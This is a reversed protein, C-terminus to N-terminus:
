HTVPVRSIESVVTPGCALGADRLGRVLALIIDPHMNRAKLDTVITSGYDPRLLLLSKLAAAAEKRHGLHHASVAILIFPYIVWPMNIKSAESLAEAHRGHMFQWMSLAIRYSCSLSPSRRYAEEIMPIGVQWNARAAHRMGLEALVEMDNPNLGRSTELADIASDVQGNFWYAIALALYARSSAPSLQVARQALAIARGIPDLHPATGKYGFRVSNSYLQSLCAFAEAYYPDRETTRELAQRVPEFQDRDFTRWYDHFRVVSDFSESAVPNGRARERAMYSFIIGSPQGVAGVVRDAIQSRVAAATDSAYTMEFYDSWIYQGTAMDRLLVEACLHDEAHAIAGSLIFDVGRGIRLAAIDNPEMHGDAWDSGVVALDTFRTLGVIVRRTIGRVFDTMGDASGEAVFEAVHITPRRVPERVTASQAAQAPSTSQKADVEGQPLSFSPVYSGVPISIRIPDSLGSTLYYHELSRRMRGAEIRVIADQQPDFSENRGFVSTAISYAKIRDARGEITEEVVYELFRRNRESADFDRCGLIRKVQARIAEPDGLIACPSM